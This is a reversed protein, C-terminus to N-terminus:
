GTQLTCVAFSITLAPYSTCRSPLYSMVGSPSRTSFSSGGAALYALYIRSPAQKARVPRRRAPESDAGACRQEGSSNPGRGQFSGTMRSPDLSPSGM